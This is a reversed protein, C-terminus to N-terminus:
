TVFSVGAELGFRLYEELSARLNKLRHTQQLAHFVGMEGEDDAGASIAAPCAPALQAYGPQGYTLSTFQPMARGASAADAPQCRFRRPAQSGLPLYCFRVCGVQRRSVQVAGIFLSNSAELSRLRSPGLITSAQIETAPAVIALAQAGDVLSETIRLRQVTDPVTLPGVISHDVVLSLRANQEGTQGAAEVNLGGASPVLTTHALRLTGLNGALVSLRGEILLGDIVLEGPDLREAAATGRVALDGRLHPRRGSPTLRGVVRQTLGPAGPVDEEPWDAAAITLQSGAPIAIAHAGTLSEAYTRSDMVAIVGVTGPPQANWAQIAEALTRVLQTQNAPAAPTVGMQWVVPRTLAAALSRRRDYPGGGVDGSFGYAYSVEVGHPTLGAPFALRGLVPDVAVQIPREVQQGDSTRRYAKSTPPRRWDAPPPGTTPDGLHCILMEESPIPEFAGDASRQVFVQLVPPAAFYLLRPPTGDVLAQRYAELEDYLPRRRLAGPVNVEGALQGIGLETRPRNFLPADYGLPHFRYRGDPPDSVARATSRAIAYSQLRWLFLGVHPINYRGRGNDIHRVDVTHTASEFPGDVLELQDASRLSATSLNTPRVHNLAQTAVLREFFEVAKAPWGTLDRALQELVAATGKRRRSALTNAVLGRQSFAGNQVPLLGRVGLLDGIYPVVWEDCTEIFWNDYLRAIDGELRALEGELVGLLARLPEGSAADRLRHIAPLLHYLRESGTQSM